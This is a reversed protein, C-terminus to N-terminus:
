DNNYNSYINQFLRRSARTPFNSSVSVISPGELKIILSDGQKTPWFGYNLTSNKIGDHIAELPTFSADQSSSGTLRSTGDTCSIGENETPLGKHCVCTPYPADDKLLKVYQYEYERERFDHVSNSIYKDKSCSKAPLTWLSATALRHTTEIYYRFPGDGQSVAM